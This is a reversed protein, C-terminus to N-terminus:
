DLLRQVSNHIETGGVGGGVFRDDNEGRNTM